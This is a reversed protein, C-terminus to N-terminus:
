RTERPSWPHRCYRWSAKSTYCYSSMATCLNWIRNLNGLQKGHTAGSSSGWWCREEDPSQHYSGGTDLKTAGTVLFVDAFHLLVRKAPHLFFPLSFPNTWGPSSFAFPCKVPRKVQSLSTIPFIFGPEEWLHVINPFSAFSVLWLLFFEEEYHFVFGGPLHHLM